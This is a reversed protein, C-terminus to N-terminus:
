ISMNLKIKDHHTYDYVIFDEFNFDEVKTQFRNTIKIKPFKFPVRLIQEKLHQEHDLYIHSDGITHILEYPELGSLKAFIITLLSASAINFPVGLGMDGSRQYLSCSLKSGIVKFQYLVHCAPLVTDNLSLPDWLNIIIRRSTPDEKLMQLVNKVQDYGCNTYNTDCNIYKGGYHRFNHGYIPGCDGEVRSTFGLKDLTERSSNGKWISVGKNELNKSNTDGKLFWLLEEVIGKIFMKKTTLLPFSDNELNFRMQSGFLSKTGMNTRDNSVYGLNIINSLQQLYQQEEQNSM